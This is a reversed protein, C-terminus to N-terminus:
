TCLFLCAPTWSFFVFLIHLSPTKLYTLYPRELLSPSTLILCSLSPPFMQAFLLDPLPGGGANAGGGRLFRNRYTLLSASDVNARTTCGLLELSAFVSPGHGRRHNPASLHHRHDGSGNGLSRSNLTLFGPLRPQLDHSGAVM